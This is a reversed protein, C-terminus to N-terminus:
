GARYFKMSNGSFFKNMDSVSIGNLAELMNEVIEDYSARLTSVPWNSAFMCRDPGFIQWATQIVHNNRQRDWSHHPEGLESIKIWVNPCRALAELGLKWQRMGQTTRDWPLGTHNLVMPINPFQSAVDAAEALHWYPVRMDWSLGYKQLLGLGRLWAPDQMSGRLDAMAQNAQPSTKPKCRIGRVLPSKLHEQINKECNEDLFSVHPVIVTPLGERSHLDTLWRTEDLQEDRAREAEIHVTGIVEWQSSAQMYDDPLHSKKCLARYDGLFFDKDFASSLWPYHGHNLNWFHHHADFIRINKFDPQQHRSEDTDLM